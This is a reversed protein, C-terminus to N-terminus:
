LYERKVVIGKLTSCDSLKLLIEKVQANQTLHYYYQLIGFILSTEHESFEIERIKTYAKIRKRRKHIERLWIDRNLCTYNDENKWKFTQMDWCKNVYSCRALLCYALVPNISYAQKIDHMDYYKKRRIRKTYVTIPIKGTKINDVLNLFQKVEENQLLEDLDM